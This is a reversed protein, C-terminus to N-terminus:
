NMACCTVTACMDGRASAGFMSISERANIIPKGLERCHRQMDADFSKLKEQHAEMIDNERQRELGDKVM